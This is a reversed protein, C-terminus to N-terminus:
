GCAGPHLGSAPCQGPAPASSQCPCCGIGCGAARYRALAADLAATRASSVLVPCNCLGELTLRDGQQLAVTAPRLAACADGPWCAIASRLAEDYDRALALCEESLPAKGDCAFPVWAADSATATSSSAPERGGGCAATALVAALSMFAHVRM